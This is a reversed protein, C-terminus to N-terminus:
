YKISEMKKKLLAKYKELLEDENGHKECFLKLNKKQEKNFIMLSYYQISIDTEHIHNFDFQYKVYNAYYQNITGVNNQNTQIFQNLKNMETEIKSIKNKIEINNYRQQQYCKQREQHLEQYHQQAKQYEITKDIDVNIETNRIKEKIKFLQQRFNIIKVLEEDIDSVNSIYNSIINDLPNDIKVPKLIKFEHELSKIMWEDLEPKNYSGGRVKDIGYKLMYKKVTKDVDAIEDTKIVEILSNMNNDDDEYNIDNIDNIPENKYGVLIHNNILLVVFIYIM